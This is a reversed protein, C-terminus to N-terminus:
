VSLRRKPPISALVSFLVLIGGPLLFLGIIIDFLFFVLNIAFVLLRFIALKQSIQKQGTLYLILGLILSIGLILHVLVGGRLQAYSMNKCSIDIPPLMMLSQCRTGAPLFLLIVAAVMLLLGGSMALDSALKSHNLKKPAMPWGKVFDQYPVIGNYGRKAPIDNWSVLREIDLRFRKGAEGFQLIECIHRVKGL